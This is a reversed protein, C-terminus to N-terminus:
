AMYKAIYDEAATMSDAVHLVVWKWESFENIPRYQWVNFKGDYRPGVEIPLNDVFWNNM